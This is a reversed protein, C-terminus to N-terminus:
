VAPTRRRLAASTLLLVGLVVFLWFFPDGHSYIEASIGTVLYLIGILDTVFLSRTNGQRYRFWSWFVAVGLAIMSGSASIWVIDIVRLLHADIPFNGFAAHVETIAYGHGFAGLGIVTGAALMVLSFLKRPM